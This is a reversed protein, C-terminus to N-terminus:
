VPKVNKFFYVILFYVRIYFLVRALDMRSAGTIELLKNSKGLKAILYM